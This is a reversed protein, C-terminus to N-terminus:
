GFPDGKRDAGDDPPFRRVRDACDGGPRGRGEEKVHEDIRARVVTNTM